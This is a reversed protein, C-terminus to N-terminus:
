KVITLFNKRSTVLYVLLLPALKYSTMYEFKLIVLTLFFFLLLLEEKFFKVTPVLIYESNNNNKKIYM